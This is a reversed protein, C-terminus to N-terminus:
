LGAKYARFAGFPGVYLFHVGSVSPKSICSLNTNHAYLFDYIASRTAVKFKVESSRSHQFELDDSTLNLTALLDSM